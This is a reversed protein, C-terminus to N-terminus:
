EYKLNNKLFTLYPNFTCIKIRLKEFHWCMKVLTKSQWWTQCRLGDRLGLIFLFCNSKVWLLCCRMEFWNSNRFWQLYNLRFFFFFLIGAYIYWKEQDRQMLVIGLIPVFMGTPPVSAALFHRLTSTVNMFQSWWCLGAPWMRRQVYCRLPVTAVSRM